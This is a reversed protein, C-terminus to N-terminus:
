VSSWSVEKGELRRVAIAVLAWSYGLATSFNRVLVFLPYGIYVRRRAVLPWSIYVNRLSYLLVAALVFVIIGLGLLPVVFAVLIGVITLWLPTMTRMIEGLLRHKLSYLLRMRGRSFWKGALEQLTQDRKHWWHVGPIWGVKYGAAEFRRFLDKDEGQFLREDFGGVSLIAKRRYVWAYFPKIKGENLLRHQVKNEIDICEVALTNRLKLPAGTLCVASIEPQAGLLEVAKQIYDESYTCDAEMFFVTDGRSAQLGVNRAHSAGGHSTEVAKANSMQSCAETAVSLTRDTSGDDVITVEINQYTQKRIEGLISPVEKEANYLPVVISVLQGSAIIERQQL